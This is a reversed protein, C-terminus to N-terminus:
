AKKNEAHSQALVTTIMGTAAGIPGGYISDGIIKAVPKIDDGTVSRYINGIIPIHQLPNIIDLFDLFGIQDTANESESQNKQATTSSSPSSSPSATADQGASPEISANMAASAPTTPHYVPMYGATRDANQLLLSFKSKEATKSIADPTVSKDFEGTGSISVGSLNARIGVPNQSSQYDPVPITAKIM